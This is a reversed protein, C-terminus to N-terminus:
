YATNELSTQGQGSIGGWGAKGMYSMEPYLPVVAEPLVHFGSPASLDLSSAGLPGRDPTDKRPSHAGPVAARM